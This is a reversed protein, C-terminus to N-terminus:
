MFGWNKLQELHRPHFRNKDLIKLFSVVNQCPKIIM